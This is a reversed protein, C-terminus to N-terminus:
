GHNVKGIAINLQDIAKGIRDMDQFYRLEVRAQEEEFLTKECKAFVAAMIDREVQALDREQESTM